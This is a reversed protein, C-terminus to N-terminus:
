WWWILSVYNIRGIILLDGVFGIFRHIPNDLIQLIGNTIVQPDNLIIIVVVINMFLGIASIFLLYAGASLYVWEPMLIDTSGASINGTIISWGTSNLAFGVAHGQTGNGVERHFLTESINLASGACGCLFLFSLCSFATRNAMIKYLSLSFNAKRQM